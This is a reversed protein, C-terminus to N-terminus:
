TRERICQWILVVNRVVGRILRDAQLGHVQCVHCLVKRLEQFRGPLVLKRAEADGHGELHAEMVMLVIVLVLAVTDVQLLQQRINCGINITTISISLERIHAPLTQRQCSSVLLIIHGLVDARGVGHHPPGLAAVLREVRVPDADLNGDLLAKAAAVTPKRAQRHLGTAAKCPSRPV